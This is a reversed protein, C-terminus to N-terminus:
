YKKEKLKELSQNLRPEPLKLEMFIAGFVAFLTFVFVRWVCGTVLQNFGIQTNYRTIIVLATYFIGILGGCCAASIIRKPDLYSETSKAPGICVDEDAFRVHLSDTDAESHVAVTAIGLEKCARIIRLAIEGRNAILIKKFM